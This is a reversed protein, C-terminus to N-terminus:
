SRPIVMQQRSREILNFSYQVRVATHVSMIAQKTNLKETLKLVREEGIGQSVRYNCKYKLSLFLKNDAM